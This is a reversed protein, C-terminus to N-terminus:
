WTAAPRPCRRAAWSCGAASRGARPAARRRGVHAHGALLRLPPPHHGQRHPPLRGAVLRHLPRTPHRLRGGVPLEHPRRVVRLGRAEPGVAAPHGVAPQHPEGLLRAPGVPHPRAGRQRPVRARHREPPRRVLRAPPQQFPQPPLLLEGGRLRDVPTATSRATRRGRARRRHLVGRLWATSAGYVHRARHRRRRLLSCCNEVATRHRPETTRIFDDNSINLASGPTPSSPAIEDAFEQPTKGAADAAQQIKLGHEDTGTLFHVDDGLLRHWRALADGVITTYAHGLHPKANVYYIPTTLYFSVGCSAVWGM